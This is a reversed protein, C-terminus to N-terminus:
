PLRSWSSPRIRSRDGFPHPARAGRQGPRGSGTPLESVGGGEGTRARRKRRAAVAGVPRAQRAPLGPGRRPLGGMAGRRSPSRPQGWRWGRGRHGARGLVAGRHRRAAARGGRQGMEGAAAKCRRRGKGSRRGCAVPPHVGEFPAPAAGAAKGGRFGRAGPRTPGQARGAGVRPGRVASPAATGTPGFLAMSCCAARRAAMAWPWPASGASRTRLPPRIKSRTVPRSKSPSRAM